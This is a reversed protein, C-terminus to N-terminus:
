LVKVITKGPKGCLQSHPAVDHGEHSGSAMSVPFEVIREKSNREFHRLSKITTSLNM